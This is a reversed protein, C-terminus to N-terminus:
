IEHAYFLSFSEIGDNPKKISANSHHIARVGVRQSEGLKLGLSIRDEFDFASGFNQDGASAEAFVSVGIAVCFALPM